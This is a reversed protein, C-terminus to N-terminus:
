EFTPLLDKINRKAGFRHLSINSFWVGEQDKDSKKSGRFSSRPKLLVPRSNGIRDKWDFLCFMLLTTDCWQTLLKSAALM